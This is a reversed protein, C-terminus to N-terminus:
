KENIYDLIIKKVRYIGRGDVLNSNRVFIKKQRLISHDRILKLIKKKSINKFKGGNLIAKKKSFFDIANKQHSYNEFVIPIKGLSISEFM